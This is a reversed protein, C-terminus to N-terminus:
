EGEPKNVPLEISVITGKGIRSRLSIQGGHDLEIIRQAIPLGLGTGGKDRRNTRFRRFALEADDEAMGRGNDEITLHILRNRDLTAYVRLHGRQSMAQYANTFINALARTLREAFAYTYIDKAIAIENTVAIVSGESKVSEHALRAAEAVIESLRVRVIDERPPSGYTDLDEILSQLADLREIIAGVFSNATDDKVIVEALRKELRKSHAWLPTMITRIEHATEATLERYYQNGIEQAIKYIRAPTLSRLSISNIYNAIYQLTPDQEDKTLAWGKKNKNHNVIRAVARSAAQRVWRNSDKQLAELIQLLHESGFCHVEAVAIVAARRVEWKEDRTAEILLPGLQKEHSLEFKEAALASAISQLVEVRRTWFSDRIGRLFEEVDESREDSTKM